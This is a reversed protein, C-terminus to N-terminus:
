NEKKAIAIGLFVGAILLAAAVALTILYSTWNVCNTTDM